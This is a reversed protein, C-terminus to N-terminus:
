SPRRSLSCEECLQIEKRFQNGMPPSSESLPNNVPPNFRGGVRDGFTVYWPLIRIDIPINYYNRLTFEQYHPADPGMGGIWGTARTRNCTVLTPCCQLTPRCQGMGGTAPSLGRNPLGESMLPLWVEPPGVPKALGASRPIKHRRCSISDETRSLVTSM